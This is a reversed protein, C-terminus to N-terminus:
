EPQTQIGRWHFVWKPCVLALTLTCIPSYTCLAGDSSLRRACTTRAMSQRYHEEVWRRVEAHRSRIASALCRQKNWPCAHERVWRLVELRGTQAASKVGREEREVSLRAGAGVEAGGPARDSRRQCTREDWPRHHERAWKLVELHGHRGAAECTARDWACNHESGRAAGM